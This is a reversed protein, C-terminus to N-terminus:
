KTSGPGLTTEALSLSASPGRTDDYGVATCGTSCRCSVGNLLGHIPSQPTSEVTWGDGNWREALPRLIIDSGVGGIATCSTPSTCSVGMLTGGGGWPDELYTVSPTSTTMWAAGNWREALPAGIGSITEHGDNYGVALCFSQSPCSVGNLTTSEGCGRLRPSAQRLWKGGTWREILPLHCGTEPDTLNGVATCANRSSCSVGYLSGGSEGVRPTRQVTWRSGDWREVLPRDTMSSSGVATCADTSTCSVDLLTADEFSTQTYAQDITWNGSRREILPYATGSRTTFEGVAICTGMWPCSVGALRAETSSAPEPIAEIEWMAGNWREALPLAQGAKDTSTGIASCASTSTCSVAVLESSVLNPPTPPPRLTWGSGAAAEATAPCVGVAVCAAGIRLAQAFASRTRRRRRRQRARANQLIM